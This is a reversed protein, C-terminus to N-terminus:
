DYSSDSLDPLGKKAQRLTVKTGQYLSLDLKVGILQAFQDVMDNLARAQAALEKAASASEESTASSAQTAEEIQGVATAVEGLGQAQQGSAQAIQGLSGALSHVLAEQHESAQALRGMLESLTAAEKEIQELVKGGKQALKGGAETKLNGAKILLSIEKASTKSNEALQAVEDAVVAFGKGEEGARAAEIAANTALIKTNHTIEALVEIIGTIEQSSEQIEQMSSGIESMSGVGESSASRTKLALAAAEKAGGVVKSVEKLVDEMQGTGAQAAEANSQTQASVEQLTSSIEEISAAQESSYTALNDAADAIAESAVLVQDSAGGVDRAIRLLPRNIQANILWLFLGSLLAMVVLTSVGAWIVMAWLAARAKQAEQAVYNDIDEVYIGTGLIWSWDKFARVYSLKPQPEEFGPKPWHYDVFGEGEAQAVKVMENFLFVGNPDKTKSLDQGNLKPNAPHMIMKPGFDNIWFYGNEGYSLNSITAAARDQLTQQLDAVYAGTGVIWGTPKFRFVYSVKLDEMGTKPHKWYYTVVAHDQTDMKQAIEKFFAKGRSDKLNSLDRNELDPSVPHLLVTAGQQLWYYNGQDYRFERLFRKAAQEGGQAYLQNLLQGFTQAKKELVEGIHEPESLRYYHEIAKFAIDTHTKLSDKKDHILQERYEQLARQSDRWVGYSFLLNIVLASLFTALGAMLLVKTKITLRM